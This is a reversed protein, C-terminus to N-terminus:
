TNRCRNPFQCVDPMQFQCLPKGSVIEDPSSLEFVEMPLSRASTTDLGDSVLPERPPRIRFHNVVSDNRVLAGPVKPLAPRLMRIPGRVNLTSKEACFFKGILSRQRSIYRASNKLKKLWVSSFLGPVVSVDPLKPRMVLARSGRMM